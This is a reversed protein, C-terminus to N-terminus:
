ACDCCIIDKINKRLTAILFLFFDPCSFWTIGYDRWFSRRFLRFFNWICLIFHNENGFFSFISRENQASKKYFNYIVDFTFLDIDSLRVESWELLETDGYIKGIVEEDSGSLVGGSDNLYGKITSQISRLSQSFSLVKFRGSVKNWELLNDSNVSYDYLGKHLTTIVTVNPLEENIREIFSQFRLTEDIDVRSVVKEVYYGFEDIIIFLKKKRSYSKLKSFLDVGEVSELPERLDHELSDGVGVLGICNAKPGDFEFHARIGTITERFAFLFSSKGTGYSGVLAIIRSKSDSINIISNFISQLEDNLVYNFEKTKTYKLNTSLSNIMSCM